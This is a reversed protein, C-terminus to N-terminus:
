FFPLGCLGYFGRTYTYQKGGIIFSTLKRTEPSLPVQHYACPLDSVSFLKGNVRTMIMQVPELPWSYNTLDTVSTLFRADVVLKVYVSKPMLIIPNVFLSGMEDDDGMERIIDADKLQTLLKELKEKLHLPVKSPRQRKFEVNPKLTLHFKQRTKGVDFKHQSYVDRSDILMDILLTMEEDTIDSFQFDIEKLYQVFEKPQYLLFHGILQNNYDKERFTPFQEDCTPQCSKADRTFDTELDKDNLYFEESYREIEDEGYFDPDGESSLAHVANEELTYAVVRINSYAFIDRLLKVVEQWNMQDLVCGIKPIAITSIGHLRAHSKMEELTLSLTRLNPKESYNTKTVLNYIYRNGTQDWFPFIQGTFLKTRRCADRLGHIQQSLFDAFGKSMEADASICHGISHPQQLISDETGHIIQLCNAPSQAPITSHLLICDNYKDDTQIIANTLEYPNRIQYKREEKDAVDLSSFGIRRKPLTIQHNKNNEILIPLTPEPQTCIVNVFILGTAVAERNPQFM